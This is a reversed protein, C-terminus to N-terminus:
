DCSYNQANMERNVQMTCLKGTYQTIMNIHICYDSPYLIGVGGEECAM